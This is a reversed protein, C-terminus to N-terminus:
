LNLNSTNNGQKQALIKSAATYGQKIFCYWRIGCQSIQCICYLNSLFIPCAANKLILIWWLHPPPAVRGRGLSPPTSSSWPPGVTPDREMTQVLPCFHFYHWLHRTPSAWIRSLGPPPSNSKASSTRLRQSFFEGETKDQM